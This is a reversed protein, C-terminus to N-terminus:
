VYCWQLAKRTLRVAFSNSPGRSLCNNEKQQSASSPNLPSFLLHVMWLKIVNNTLDLAKLGKCLLLPYLTEIKTISGPRGSYSRRLSLFQLNTLYPLAYMLEPPLKSDLFQAAYFITM